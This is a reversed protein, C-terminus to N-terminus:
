NNLLKKFGHRRDTQGHNGKGRRRICGVLGIGIAGLVAASPSPVRLQPDLTNAMLEYFEANNPPPSRKNPLFNTAVINRDASIAIMNQNHPSGDTALLKADTALNPYAFAGDHYYEIDSLHDIGTFILDDAFKTLKGSLPDSILTNTVFPSYGETMIRGGIGFAGTHFAHTSLTLTGGADVYDALVDGLATAEYPIQSTYALVADYGNLLVLTPTDGTNGTKLAADFTDVSSFRGTDSFKDPAVYNPDAHVILLSPLDARSASVCLGGILVAACVIVIISIHRM